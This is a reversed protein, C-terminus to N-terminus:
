AAFHADFAGYLSPMEPRPGVLSMKGTLVLLLQPLEDLHLRRLMRSFAPIRMRAVEYKNAYRPTSKPLTRVKLLKFPEGNRGIRTQSFFPSTRLVAMTILASVAIIPLAVVLLLTAVVLDVVRKAIASTMTGRGERVVAGQPRCGESPHWLSNTRPGDEWSRGMEVPRPGLASTLHSHLSLVM